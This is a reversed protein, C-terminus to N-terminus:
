GNTCLNTAQMLPAPLTLTVQQGATINTGPNVTIAVPGALPYVVVPWTETTIGAKDNVMYLVNTTGPAIGTVIGTEENVNAIRNDGSSWTGGPENATLAVTFGACVIQVNSLPRSCLSITETRTTKCGTPLTYSIVATSASVGTVVGTGAGVTAVTTGTTSWTGGSTADTLTVTAGICVTTAGAIPAPSPNVTVNVMSACGSPVTYNINVTGASVGTVNGLGVGGSTVSAVATSSSSWTGGTTADSLSITSGTCVTNSGTIPSMAYITIAKTATCSGIAYTITSTGPTVGTVVGSSSGVSVLTNSASWVGGGAGDTFTTTSGQCVTSSGSISSPAANITAIKSTNCGDSLTYVITATGVSVATLM